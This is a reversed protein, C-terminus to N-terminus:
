ANKLYSIELKVENLLNDIYWVTNRPVRCTVCRIYHEHDTWEWHLEFIDVYIDLRNMRATWSLFWQEKIYDYIKKYKSQKM